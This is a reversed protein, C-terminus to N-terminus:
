HNSHDPRSFTQVLEQCGGNPRAIQVGLLCSIASIALQLIAECILLIVPNFLWLSMTENNEFSILISIVQFLLIRELYEDQLEM